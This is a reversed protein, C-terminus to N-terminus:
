CEEIKRSRKKWEMGTKIREHVLRKIIDGSSMGSRTRLGSHHLIVSQLGLVRVVEEM